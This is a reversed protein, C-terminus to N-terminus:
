EFSRSALDVMSAAQKFDFDLFVVQFSCLVEAAAAVQKQTTTSEHDNMTISHWHPKAVENGKDEELCNYPLDKLDIVARGLFVPDDQQNQDHHNWLNLVIPPATERNLMSTNVDITEHFFTNNPGSNEKISTQSQKGDIDWVSISLKQSGDTNTKTLNIDKCEFIFCRIKYSGLRRPAPRKWAEYSQFNVPPDQELSHCCIKFQILGAEHDAKVKSEDCSKLKYWRYNPNLDTFDEVKGRWICLANQFADRLIVSVTESYKTSSCITTDFRQSWRQYGDSEEKANDTELELKIDNTDGIQIVITYQPSQPQSNNFM